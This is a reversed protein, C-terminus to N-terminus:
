SARRLSRAHRLGRQALDPPPPSPWRKGDSTFSFGGAMLDDPASVRKITGTAPDLRFLHSATKQLGGFYIGDANWEVFGPQEDFDDTM